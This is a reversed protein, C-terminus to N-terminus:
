EHKSFCRWVHIHGDAAATALLGSQPSDPAWDVGKISKLHGKLIALLPRANNNKSSSPHKGAARDFIRLRKDWGAIAFLRGEGPQFRCLNVGPKGEGTPQCTSLRSRLRVQLTSNDRNYFDTSSSTLTAKLIAVTGQESSPLEQQSLAEGALGAIAVIGAKSSTAVTANRTAPHHHHSPAADLALVPDTSLTLAQPKSQHGLMALDHFFVTGSEMGCAVIPRSSSSFLGAGETRGMSATTPHHLYSESFALSTLMGHQKSSKNGTHGGRDEEGETTPLGAAADGPFIAVPQLSPDMRLDRITVDSEGESPLALLNPNGTCPAAACFTQSYTEWSMLTPVAAAAAAAAAASQQQQYHDQPPTPSYYTHLIGSRHLQVSSVSTPALASPM